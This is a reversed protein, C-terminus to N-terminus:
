TNPLLGNTSCVRNLVGKIDLILGMWANSKDGNDKDLLRKIAGNERANLIAALKGGVRRCLADAERRSLWDGPTVLLCIRDILHWGSGPCARKQQNGSTLSPSEPAAFVVFMRETEDM